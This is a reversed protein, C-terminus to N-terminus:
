DVSGQTERPEAWGSEVSVRSFPQSLLKTPFLKPTGTIHPSGALDRLPSRRARSTDAAQTKWERKGRAPTAKLAVEELVSVPTLHGCVLNTLSFSLRGWPRSHGPQTGQGVGSHLEPKTGEM